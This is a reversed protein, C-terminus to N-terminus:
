APDGQSPHEFILHYRFMEPHAAGFVGKEKGPLPILAMRKCRRCKLEIGNKKVKAVLSGCHCRLDEATEM